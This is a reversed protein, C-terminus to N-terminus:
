GFSGQYESEPAYSYIDLPGRFKGNWSLCLNLTPLSGYINLQYAMRVSRSTAEQKLTEMEGNNAKKHEEQEKHEAELKKAKRKM